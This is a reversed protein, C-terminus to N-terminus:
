EIVVVLRRGCDRCVCWRLTSGDGQDRRSRYTRLRPSGCLCRPRLNYVYEPRPRAPPTPRENSSHMQALVVSFRPQVAVPEPRISGSPGALPPRLRQVARRRPDAQHARCRVVPAAPMADPPFPRSVPAPLRPLARCPRLGAAPDPRPDPHHDNPYNRQDQRGVVSGRGAYDASAISTTTSPGISPSTLTIAPVTLVRSPLRPSSRLRPQRPIPFPPANFGPLPGHARAPVPRFVNWLM